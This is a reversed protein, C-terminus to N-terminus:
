DSARDLLKRLAPRIYVRDLDFRRLAEAFTKIKDRAAAKSDIILVYRGRLLCLGGVITILEEDQKIPEYRIEIGFGRALEEMQDLATEEDMLFTRAERIYLLFPGTKRGPRKFEDM